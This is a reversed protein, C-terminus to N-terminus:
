RMVESRGSCDGGNPRRFRIESSRVGFESRNKPNRINPCDSISSSSESTPPRLDSTPSRLNREHIICALLRDRMAM